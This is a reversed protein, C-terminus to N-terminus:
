LPILLSYRRSPARDRAHSVAPPQHRGRASSPTGGTLWHSLPLPVPESSLKLSGHATHLVLGFPKGPSWKTNKNEKRRKRKQKRIEKMSKAYQM